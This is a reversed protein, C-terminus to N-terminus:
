DYASSSLEVLSDMAKHMGERRGGDLDSTGAVAVGHGFYQRGRKNVIRDRAPKERRVPNVRCRKGLEDRRKSASGQCMARGVERAILARRREPQWGVCCGDLLIEHFQQLPTDGELSALRAKRHELGHAPCM